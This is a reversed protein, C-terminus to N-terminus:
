VMGCLCVMFIEVVMPLTQTKENQFISRLFYISSFLLAHIIGTPWYIQHRPRRQREYSQQGTHNSAFACVALQKRGYRESCMTQKCSFRSAVGSQKCNHKRTIELLIEKRTRADAFTILCPIICTLTQINLIQM